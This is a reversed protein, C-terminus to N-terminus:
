NYTFYVKINPLTKKIKIQESESFNNDVLWLEKLSLLNRINEPLHELNNESLNLIKLNSNLALLRLTHEWNLNPNTGLDLYQLNSLCAIEKPLKKLNYRYLSLWQLQSLQCLNTDVNNYISSVFKSESLNLKLAKEEKLAEKVSSTEKQKELIDLTLLEGKSIQINKPNNLAIIEHYNISLYPPINENEDLFLEIGKNTFSLTRCIMSEGEDYANGALFINKLINDKIDLILLRTETGGIETTENGITISYLLIEFDKHRWKKLGKIKVLSDNASYNNELDKYIDFKYLSNTECLSIPIILNSIEDINDSCTSFTNLNTEKKFYSSLDNQILSDKKISTKSEEILSITNKNETKCASFCLITISFLTLTFQTILTKKM